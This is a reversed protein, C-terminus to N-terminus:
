LREWVRSWVQEAAGTAAASDGLEGAIIDPAEDRRFQMLGAHYASTLDDRAVDGVLPALGGLTVLGVDLGNVLAATGRGLSAALAAVAHRASTDGAVARALVGRVYTVADPPLPEDLSSALAAAGVSTTWCGTAGCPCSISLDGFPMHGFEGALGHTGSLVSGNQTVAGGLGANLHLHLHLDTGRAAGRSAEGIAAFTADNGAVFLDEGDTMPQTVPATPSWVPRLDLNRWGLLPAHMLVTGRVVGPLGLGMGHVRGPFRATLARVAGRLREVVAAGDQGDHAGTELAINGGGLEIASVQWSEHDVVGALVLPGEHHAVLQRTPRGRGGTREAPKEELLHYEVLSRVLGTITGTSAGLMAAARARTLGPHVHALQLLELERTTLSGM